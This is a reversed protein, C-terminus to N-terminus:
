SLLWCPPPLLVCLACPRKLSRLSDDTPAITVNTTCACAAVAGSDSAHVPLAAQPGRGGPAVWSMTAIHVVTQPASTGVLHWPGDPPVDRSGRVPNRQVPPGAPRCLIRHRCHRAQPRRVPPARMVMSIASMSGVTMATIVYAAPGGGAMPIATSVVSVGVGDDGSADSRGGGTLPVLVAASAGGRPSDDDALSPPLLRVIVIAGSTMSTSATVAHIPM